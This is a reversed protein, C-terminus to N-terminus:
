ESGNPTLKKKQTEIRERLDFTLIYRLIVYKEQYLRPPGPMIWQAQSLYDYYSSSLGIFILYFSYYVLGVCYHFGSLAVFVLSIPFMWIHCEWALVLVVSIFGNSSFCLCALYFSCLMRLLHPFYAPWGKRPQPFWLPSNPLHPLQITTTVLSQLFGLVNM